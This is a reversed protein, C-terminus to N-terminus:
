ALRTSGETGHSSRSSGPGTRRPRVGSPRASSRRSRTRAATRATRRARSRRSWLRRCRRPQPPRGGCTRGSSGRCPPRPRAGVVLRQRARTSATKSVAWGSSGVARSPAVPRRAPRRGEVEVVGLDGPGAEREGARTGARRSRSAALTSRYRRSNVRRSRCRSTSTGSPSSRAATVPAATTAACLRARRVQSAPPARASWTPPSGHATGAPPRGAAPRPPRRARRRRGGARPPRRAGPAGPWRRLAVGRSAVLPVRTAYTGVLTGNTAKRRVRTVGPGCGPSRVGLQVPEPGPTVPSQRSSASM